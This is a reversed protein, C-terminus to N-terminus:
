QNSLQKIMDVVQDATVNFSQAIIWDRVANKIKGIAPGKIEPLVNMILQGNILEGMRAEFAQTDGFKKYVDEVKQMKAEFAKLDFLHLRSAEDSYITNKLTPWDPNQRLGLITKDNLKDINHGHMHKAISLEIAKRDKNTIKLRNAIKDFIPLGAEEHGYYTPQGNKDGLTTAKGLDHLLVAINDVPNKSPSKSVAALVHEFVGGEPHHVPNHHFKQLEKVEPLVQELLGVADLKRIYTALAPGGLEATKFLEDRVREPSLNKISFVLKKIANETNAELEFGFKAAFRVARLLRLADESFRAKADGVARILRNKIDEVGGNYDSIEGKYNIGMSNITFDRRKSDKEFDNVISVKDPRRNDSYGEEQRFNAVEFDFNNYKITIIGFDKSKGIDHTHYKQELQELSANTAIDVDHVHINGMLLDRVTGGVMLASTNPFTDEIEKCLQAAAAIMANSRIIEDWRDIHHAETVISIFKNFLHTM